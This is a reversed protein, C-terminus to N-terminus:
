RTPFFKAAALSKCYSHEVFDCHRHLNKTKFSVKGCGRQKKVVRSEEIETKIEIRAKKGEGQVRFGVRYERWEYRSIIGEM